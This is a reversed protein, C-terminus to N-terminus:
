FYLMAATALLRSGWLLLFALASTTYLLRIATIIDAPTVPRMDDGITPKAVLRGFYYADGALQVQLAGAAVAETRASNPSAHNKCDRRYIRRAGARDLRCLASAAIMLWASLIALLFNALDDLKAAFRGFLLYRDNKYGIMSDLTNIAKYLFGLPAGGIALYFLPAVVGDSTNEAITEIVARTIHAEDLRETDRGVIWSLYKRAGPLDGRVLPRYVRRSETALSKTALIQYCFVTELAVQPWFGWNGALLLLGWPLLLSIATVGVTLVAGALYERRPWLRRLLKEGRAILFGIFQVPHPLSHPDGLLLDLLYGAPLAILISM